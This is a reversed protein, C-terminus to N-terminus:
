AYDGMEKLKQEIYDVCKAASSGHNYWFKERAFARVSARKTDTLADEIIEKINDIDERTIRVAMEPLISIMKPDEEVFWADYPDKNFEALSYIVPKDFIIAYDYLVGSYDSIIIDSSGLVNINDNDDNWHLHDSEPYKSQLRKIMGSEATYSQPHPRIVINFGTKILGDIM